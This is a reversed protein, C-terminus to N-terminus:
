NVPTFTHIITDVTNIQNKHVEDSAIYHIIYVISGKNILTSEITIPVGYPTTYKVIDKLSDYDGYPSLAYKGVLIINTNGKEALSKQLGEIYGDNFSQFSKFDFNGFVSRKLDMGWIFLVSQTTDLNKDYFCVIKSMVAESLVIDSTIATSASKDMEFIEWNPPLYISFHMDNNEYKKYTSPIIPSFKVPQITPVTQTSADSLPKSTSGLIGFVFVLLLVLIFIVGLAMLITNVVSEKKPNYQSTFKNLKFRYYLWYCGLGVLNLLYPIVFAWSRSGNIKPAWKEAAYSGFWYGLLLSLIGPLFKEPQSLAGYLVLCTYLTVFIITIWPLDLFNFKTQSQIVKETKDNLQNVEIKRIDDSNLKFSNIKAGCEPCFKVNDSIEMGCNPCFKPM